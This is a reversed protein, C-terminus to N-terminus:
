FTLSNRPTKLQNRRFGLLRGLAPTFIMQFLIWYPLPKVFLLWAYHYGVVSLLVWQIPMVLLQSLGALLGPVFIPDRVIKSQIRSVIYGIIAFTAANLGLLRGSWIDMLLGGIMGAILAERSNENLAVLVTVSLVAAPVYGTPFIQPFLATQMMLAFLYLVVWKLYAKGNSRM